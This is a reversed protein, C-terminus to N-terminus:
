GGNERPWGHRDRQRDHGGRDGAVRDKYEAVPICHDGPGRRRRNRVFAEFAKWVGAAHYEQPRHHYFERSPRRTSRTNEGGEPPLNNIADQIFNFDGFSKKGDGVRYTCCGRLKTLPHFVRRCDEILAKDQGSQWTLEALPVRHYFPGQAENDIILDTPNGIDGARVKFTWYDSPMYRAANEPTFKLKIGVNNPLETEATFGSVPEIGNWLRFFQKPRAAAAGVDGIFTQPLLTLTNDSALKAKAGYIVQWHGLDEDFELAELYFDSLGSHIVANWNGDIDVSNTGANFTGTGVLGGNFQSWKFWSKAPNNTEAIEIRYLQHEFGTYGGTDAVPCPDNTSQDQDLKATLTGTTSFDNLRSVVEACTEKEHLRILRFRFATQVRETTDIDGLAPEILLEPKQFANLELWTELILADRIGNAPLPAVPNQPGFYTATFNKDEPLRIPLGDAWVRGKKISVLVNKPPGNVVTAGTVKFNNREDAPVAAVGPGIIDRAATDQWENFIETQDNWDRDLLVRGQQHLTGRFNQSRDKNWDSFDGRM